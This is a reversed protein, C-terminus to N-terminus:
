PRLRKMSRAGKLVRGRQENLFRALADNVIQENEMRQENDDPLGASAFWDPVATNEDVGQGNGNQGNRNNSPVPQRGNAGQGNVGPRGQGQSQLLAQRMAEGKAEKDARDAEIAELTKTPLRALSRLWREDEATWTILSGTKALFDGMVDLGINGAPSHELKYGEPDIGNLELLRPIAYKTFTEAIVDLLANVLMTFFDSQGEQTAMAGVNDMGLMIFQALGVMLIRKEHRSIVMDTDVVKGGGGGSLLELQWNQWPEPGTGPPLIVGGQDDNRINKVLRDATEYDSSGPEPDAGQPMRVMPLGNLNREIAIAELKMIHKLYYWNIWAPRLISKGEPSGRSKRFRYILMREIPIMGGKWLYPDQWLGKLGDDKEIEWRDVTNHGLPKFKRWLWRGGKQEYQITFMSWGYFVMDLADAIHDNTSHTLNDFAEQLFATTPDDEVDENPGSFYWDVDRCPMEIAMRLAAVAASNNVMEDINEIKKRGNWSRLFDDYIRGGQQNLGSAGTDATLKSKTAQQGNLTRTTGM